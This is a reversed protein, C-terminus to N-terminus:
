TQQQQQTNLTIIAFTFSHLHKYTNSMFIGVTFPRWNPPYNRIYHILHQPFGILPQGGTQLKPSKSVVGSSLFQLLCLCICTDRVHLFWKTCFLFRLFSVHNLVLLPIIGYLTPTVVTVLSTALYLNSNTPTCTTVHPRCTVIEGNWYSGILWANHLM